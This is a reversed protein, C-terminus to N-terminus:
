GRQRQNRRHQGHVRGQDSDQGADRLRCGTRGTAYVRTDWVWVTRSTVPRLRCRPAARAGVQAQTVWVACRRLGANGDRAGTRGLVGYHGEETLQHADM